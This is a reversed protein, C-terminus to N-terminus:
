EVGAVWGICSAVDNLGHEGLCFAEEYPARTAAICQKLTLQAFSLCSNSRDNKAYVSVTKENVGSVAYRAALNLVRNMIVQANPENINGAGASKGWEPSWAADGSALGPATVGKETTAALSPVTASPRARAFSEADNIRSASPSIKAVGWKTKQMAYAQEKFAEGLAAVRATDQTTMALVRSIAENAGNLQRPYAPDEALKAFFADAGALGNKKKKSSVEKELADRFAPTDAAVLAAYAVWGASLTPASHASLRRHAERTTEASSFPTAEIAAIDERFRVYDAAARELAPDRPQALSEACVGSTAAFAIVSAAAAMLGGLRRAPATAQLTFKETNGRRVAPSLSRLM